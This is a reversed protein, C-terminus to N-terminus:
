VDCNQVHIVITEDDGCDIIRIRSTFWTGTCDRGDDWPNYWHCWESERYEKKEEENMHFPLKYKVYRTDFYGDNPYRCRWDDEPKPKYEELLRNRKRIEGKIYDLAKKRKMVEMDLKNILKETDKLLEWYLKLDRDYGM